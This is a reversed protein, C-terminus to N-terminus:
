PTNSRRLKTAGIRGSVLGAPAQSPPKDHCICAGLRGCLVSGCKPLKTPAFTAAPQASLTYHKGQPGHGGCQATSLSRVTSQPPASTRGGGTSLPVGARGGGTSAPTRSAVKEGMPPPIHTRSDTTPAIVPTGTGIGKGWEAWSVGKAPGAAAAVPELNEASRRAEQPFGRQAESCHVAELSALDFSPLPPPETGGRKGTGKAPRFGQQAQSCHVTEMSAFDFSPLPPAGGALQQFLTPCFRGSVGLVDAM